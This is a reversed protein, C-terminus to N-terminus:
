VQEDFIIGITTRIRDRLQQLEKSPLEKIVKDTETDIIKVTVERSEHDVKFKLKKNFALSIREIDEVVARLDTSQKTQKNEPFIAGTYGGLAKQKVIRVQAQTTLRNGSSEEFARNNISEMQIDM